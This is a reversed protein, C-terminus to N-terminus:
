LLSHRACLEPSEYWLGADVRVLRARSPGSRDASREQARRRRKGFHGQTMTHDAPSSLLAPGTLM